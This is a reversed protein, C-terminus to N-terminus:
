ILMTLLLMVYMHTYNYEYCLFLWVSMYIDFLWIILDYYVNHVYYNFYSNNSIDCVNIYYM